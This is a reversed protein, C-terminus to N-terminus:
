FKLAKPGLINHLVKDEVRVSECKLISIRFIPPFSTFHFSKLASSAETYLIPTLRTLPYIPTWKRSAEVKRKGKERERMMM